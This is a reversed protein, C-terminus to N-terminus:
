FILSILIYAIIILPLSTFGLFGFVAISFGLLIYQQKNDRWNLSKFKLSFLHLKSVMLLSISIAAFLLFYYNTLLASIIPLSESPSTQQLILPFAGLALAAAPTPLGIFSESQRQDTNFKALRLASFVPILFAPICWPNLTGHFYGPLNASNQMMMFLISGPLLGFSIVDALSDLEKGIDSKVNLLRAVLGDLFDFVAAIGIFWASLELNNMFAYAIGM